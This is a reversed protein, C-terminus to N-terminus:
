LFETAEPPEIPSDTGKGKGSRWAAQIGECEFVPIYHQGSEVRVGAETM